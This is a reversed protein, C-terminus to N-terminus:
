PREPSAARARFANVAEMNVMKAIADYSIAEIKQLEHSTRFGDFFHVFPVRSEIAALHAVLAMDQAEQVSASNLMAWGTQRVAMVDQHDGFICLAHTSIARATVHMVGPLLEGSIKYMNPIMLLLGQSATYTASLSGAVLAGHLAGAAGAESQMESVLMAQNFINKRGKAAWEDVVEGMPTSPTIPYLAAVESLAYSIHACANNGDVTMMEKSM